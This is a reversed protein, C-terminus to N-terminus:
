IPQWVATRDGRLYDIFGLLIGKMWFYGKKGTILLLPCVFPLFMYFLKVAYPPKTFALAQYIGSVTRRKYAEEEEAKKTRVTEVYSEECFVCKRRQRMVEFLIYTDEAKCAKIPLIRKLIDYRVLMLEGSAVVPIRRRISDLIRYFLGQPGEKVSIGAFVLGVNSLNFCRLASGFGHIRTDVDNLAVVDVDKPIFEFGFNIADYKGIPERYVLNTDNVRKGCVVLFPM